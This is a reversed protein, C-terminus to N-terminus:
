EPIHSQRMRPHTSNNTIIPDYDLARAAEDSRLSEAFHRRGHIEDNKIANSNNGIDLFYLRIEDDPITYQIFYIM